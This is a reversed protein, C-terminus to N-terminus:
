KSPHSCTSRGRSGSDHAGIVQARLGVKDQLLATLLFPALVNVAWTLEFGDPTLQRREPSFVGANNILM